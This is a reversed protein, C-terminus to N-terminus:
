TTGEDDDLLDAAIVLRTLAVLHRTVRGLQALVQANTPAQSRDLWALHQALMTRARDHMTFEVVDRTVDVEDVTVTYEGTDVNWTEHHDTRTIRDPM